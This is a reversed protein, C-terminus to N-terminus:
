EMLHLEVRQRVNAILSDDQASNLRFTMEVQQGDLATAVRDFAVFQDQIQVVNPDDTGVLQAILAFEAVSAGTSLQIVTWGLKVESDISVGPAELTAFVHSGGQFGSHLRMEGGEPVPRFAGDDLQGLVLQGVGAGPGCTGSECSGGASCDEDTNCPGGNGSNGNSNFNRNATGDGNGATCGALLGIILLLLV